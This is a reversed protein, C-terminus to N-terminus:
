ARSDLCRREFDPPLEPPLHTAGATGCAAGLLIAERPPRGRELGVSLGALLLDGPAPPM